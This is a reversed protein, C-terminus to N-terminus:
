KRSIKQTERRLEELRRDAAKAIRRKERRSPPKQRGRDGTWVTLGVVCAAVLAAVGTWFLMGILASFLYNLVFLAAAAGFLSLVLKM